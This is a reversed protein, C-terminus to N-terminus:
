VDTTIPLRTNLELQAEQVFAWFRGGQKPTREWAIRVVAIFEKVARM